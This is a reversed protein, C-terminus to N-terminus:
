DNMFERLCNSQFEQFQDLVGFEEAVDAIVMDTDTDYCDVVEEMFEIWPDQCECSSQMKLQFRMYDVVNFCLQVM